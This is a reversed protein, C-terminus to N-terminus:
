FRVSKSVKSKIGTAEGAYYGAAGTKVEQVQGKRRVNAEAFKIRHKKRPNKLDKRRHPTLGRNKEIAQNIERAGSITDDERPPHLQDPARREGRKKKKQEIYEMTSKYFENEEGRSSSVLTNDMDFAETAARKARIGDTKARRVSLSEREPLDDDGSRVGIRAEQAAIDAGFRQNSRHKVFRADVGSLTSGDVIDKIDDEFDDLLAKGSLGARRQAKLKKREEKSLPVRIMLEEEVEQRAALKQRERLAEATDMGLPVGMKREEPAGVLEAAFEQVFSSRAARRSQHVQRRREKAALRDSGGEDLDMSVPNLKPAKYTGDAKETEAEDADLVLAGPRPKHSLAGGRAESPMAVEGAGQRTMEAASLLKEIQYKLRKDIPRIKELYSRIEVLRAIVPHDQVPRGEAKMLVYFVLSAVYHLLLLHKAELYSVGESTAIDGSKIEQVLPGIRSRVENLSARLEAVLAKLELADQRVAAARLEEEDEDADVETQQRDLDMINQFRGGDDANDDDESSSAVGFDDDDIAAAAERQLRTAEEEEEKLEEEDESGEMDVLDANYYASKSAGWAVKDTKRQEEEEDDSEEEEGESEEEEGRAIDLKAKIARAQQLM